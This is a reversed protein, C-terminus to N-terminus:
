KKVKITVAIVPKKQLWSRVNEPWELVLMTKGDSLEEDLDLALLERDSEIRYADVHLLRKISKRGPIAYSRMLTFTPSQPMKKVGLKKAFAQVFTTKGAGLQGSLTVIDGPKLREVLYDALDRWDKVEPVSFRFCDQGHTVTVLRMFGM